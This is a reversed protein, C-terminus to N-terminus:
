RLGDGFSWAVAIVWEEEIAAHTEALCVQHVRDSMLDVRSERALADDVQRGFLEGILHDARDGGGPHTLETVLVAGDIHQEDVVHLEEGALVPGFLLEEM